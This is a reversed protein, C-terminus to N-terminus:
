TTKFTVEMTLSLRRRVEFRAIVQNFIFLTTTEGDNTFTPMAEVWKTFYKVAMIIYCHGRASTLHCTM